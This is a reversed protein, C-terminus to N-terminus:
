GGLKALLVRGLAHVECKFYSCPNTSFNEEKTYIKNEIKTEKVFSKMM